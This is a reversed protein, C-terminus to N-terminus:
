ARKACRMQVAFGKRLASLCDPMTSVPRNYGNFTAPGVDCGQADQSASHIYYLQEKGRERNMGVEGM